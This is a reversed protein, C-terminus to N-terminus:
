YENIDLDEFRPGIIDSAIGVCNLLRDLVLNGRELLTAVVGPAQEDGLRQVTFAFDILVLGDRDPSYGPGNPMLIQGGHFDGQDVGAYLLARLCERVHQVFATQTGVSWDSVQVDSLPTGPIVELLAGYAVSGNELSFQHLGYSHPLMSGQYQQLRHYVSEERQVLDLASHLSRLRFSPNAVYEFDELLFKSDAPFLIGWFLKLCVPPSVQGDETLLVGFFVQSFADPKHRVVTTIKFTVAPGALIDDICSARPRSARTVYKYTYRPVEPSPFPSRWPREQKAFADVKVQLTAGCDLPHAFCRQAAEEKFSLFAQLEPLSRQLTYRDFHQFNLPDMTPAVPHTNDNLAGHVPRYWPLGDFKRFSPQLLLFNVLNRLSHPGSAVDFIMRQVCYIILVDISDVITAKYEDTVLIYEPRQLKLLENWETLLALCTSCHIVDSAFGHWCITEERQFIIIMFLKRETWRPRSHYVHVVDRDFSTHCEFSISPYASRRPIMERKFFDLVPEVYKQVPTQSSGTQPLQLQKFRLAAMSQRYHGLEPFFDIEMSTFPRSESQSLPHSCSAVAPFHPSRAALKESGTDLFDVPSQPTTTM